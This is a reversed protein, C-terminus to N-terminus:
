LAVDGTEGTRIRVANEIPSVFIKGDGIEGSRVQDAIVKVLEDVLNDAVVVEVKVKPLLDITYESGRYFGKKGKQLGCGAVQTVTMGRVGIRNLAEKVEDLKTPRIIAEIKKM